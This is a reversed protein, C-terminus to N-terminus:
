FRKVYGFINLNHQNEAIFDITALSSYKEIEKRERNTTVIQVIDTQRLIDRTGRKFHEAANIFLVDHTDKPCKKYVM